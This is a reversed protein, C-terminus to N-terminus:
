KEGKADALIFLIISCIMFFGGVGNGLISTDIYMIIMSLFLILTAIISILYKTM